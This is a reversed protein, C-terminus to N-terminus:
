RQEAGAAQEMLAAELRAGVLLVGSLVVAAAVLAFVIHMPDRQRRPRAASVM